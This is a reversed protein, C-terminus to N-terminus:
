IVLTANCYALKLVRSAMEVVLTTWYQDPRSVSSFIIPEGLVPGLFSLTPIPSIM